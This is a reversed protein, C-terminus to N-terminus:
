EGQTEHTEVIRMLRMLGGYDKQTELEWFDGEAEHTEMLRGSDWSDVTSEKLRMLGWYDGQSDHSEVLRGSPSMLSVLIMSQHPSM